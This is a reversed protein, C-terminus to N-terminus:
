DWRVEVVHESKPYYAPPYKPVMVITHYLIHDNITAFAHTIVHGDRLDLKHVVLPGVRKVEGDM